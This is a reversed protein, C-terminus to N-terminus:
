WGQICVHIFDINERAQSLITADHLANAAVHDTLQLTMLLYNISRTPCM